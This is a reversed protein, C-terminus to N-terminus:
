VPAEASSQEVATEENEQEEEQTAEISDSHLDEDFAKDDSIAEKASNEIEQLEDNREEM